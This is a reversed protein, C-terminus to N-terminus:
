DEAAQTLPSLDVRCAQTARSRQSQPPRQARLSRLCHRPWELEAFSRLISLQRTTAMPGLTMAQRQSDDAQM